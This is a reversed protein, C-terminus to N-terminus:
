WKKIEKVKNGCNPCYTPEKVSDGITFWKHCGSCNYHKLLEQSLTLTIDKSKEQTDLVVKEEKQIM